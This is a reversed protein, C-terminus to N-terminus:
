ESWSILLDCSLVSDPQNIYIDYGIDVNMVASYYTRHIVGSPLSSPHNDRVTGDYLLVTFNRHARWAFCSASLFGLLILATLFHESRGKIILDLTIRFM